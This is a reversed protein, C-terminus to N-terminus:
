ACGAGSARTAALWEDLARAFADFATRHVNHGAGAFAVIQVGPAHRRAIEDFTADDNIGEGCAAMALLLPRDYRAILTRLDWAQPPNERWLREIPLTTMAHVAHVKAAVDAPDWDAYEERTREDRAAGQLSFAERLEGLYEEYWQASANRIMPDIAAVRAAGARLAGAVVVAGGWSHGLLVDVPERLAAVVNCLDQVGRDLTMPGTVGASDGHGRQDYALVRYRGRLREALRQWSLRSSTMGHVCLMVPGRDGWRELATQAGDDLRITSTAM